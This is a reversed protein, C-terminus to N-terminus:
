PLKAGDTSIPTLQGGTPMSVNSGHPIGSKFVIIKNDDPIATVQDCLAIKLLL